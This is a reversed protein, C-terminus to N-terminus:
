IMLNHKEKIICVAKQSAAIAFHYLLVAAKSEIVFFAQYSIDKWKKM